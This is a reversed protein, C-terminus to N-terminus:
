ASSDSQSATGGIYTRVISASLVSLIVLTGVGSLLHIVNDLYAGSPTASFLYLHAAILLSVVM